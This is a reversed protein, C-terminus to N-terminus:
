WWYELDLDDDANGEVVEAEVEVEAEAEPGNGNLVRVMTTSASSTGKFPCTGPICQRHPIQVFKDQHSEWKTGIPYM